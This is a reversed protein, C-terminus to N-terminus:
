YDSRFSHMSKLIKQKENKRLLLLLRREQYGYILYVSVTRNRLTGYRRLYTLYDPFPLAANESISSLSDRQLYM